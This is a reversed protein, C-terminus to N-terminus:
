QLDRCAVYNNNKYSNNTITCNRSDRLLIGEGNNSCNNNHISNNNSEIQIGSGSLGSGSIHFGSMNVWNVTIQVADGEGGGDITTQESGNGILSVTKNVVVNEYYTGEWVRITDGDSSTNIADQISENDGSGDQAVVITDAGANSLFQIVAISGVFIFVLGIMIRALHKENSM